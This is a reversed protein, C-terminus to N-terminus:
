LEQSKRAAKYTNELLSVVTLPGIGGPVPTFAASKQAAEATVEAKPWGVDILIAGPKIMEATVLSPVGTASVLIDAEQTMRLLEDTPTNKDARNVKAALKELADAAPMGVMGQGLVTVIKGAVGGAANSATLIARAAAPLFPSGPRLGDVDKELPIHDIIEPTPCPLQVIIGDAQSNEPFHDLVLVEIGVEQARKKKLEVYKLSSPDNGVLVIELKPPRAMRAVKEKLAVLRGAAISKGNIVTM